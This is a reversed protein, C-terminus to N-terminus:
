RTAHLVVLLEDRYSIPCTRKSEQRLQLEEAIGTSCSNEPLQASFSQLSNSEALASILQGECVSRHPLLWM